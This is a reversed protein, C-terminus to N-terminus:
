VVFPKEIKALEDADLYYGKRTISYIPYGMARLYAVNRGVTKRDCPIGIDNLYECIRSQLVPFEKSTYRLVNLVYVIVIKKAIQKSQNM